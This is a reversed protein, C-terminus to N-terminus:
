FSSFTTTNAVLIMVLIMTNVMAGLWVKGTAKFLYRSIYNAIILFLILPLAIFIHLWDMPGNKFYIVGTSFLTAYQIVALILLGLVSGVAGLLTSVWNKMGAVRMSSNLMVSGAFFYIFFLPMYQLAVFFSSANFPTIAAIWLRFDTNFFYQAFMLLAYFGIFICFTLALTRLLVKGKIKIGLTEYSYGSKKSNFRYSIWFLLLGVLGNFVAWFMIFNTAPQTFLTGSVMDETTVPFFVQDLNTLPIFSLASIIWSLAWSIWFFLKTNRNQKLAPLEGPVPSLVPYFVPIKLLFVTMPVIIMFCALMGIFNFIEKWNWVQNSVPIPNSVQFAATFFDVAYGASKTSFHQGGHIDDPNYIVRLTKDAANGYFKGIEVYTVKQEDTLAANVTFLSIDATGSLDANGRTLVYGNEDYLGYNIGYNAHINKVGEETLIFAASTNLGANVKNVANAADQESQTITIGGDSLPDQAAQIAAYYQMGYYELTIETCMGSVSHGMVGIKAKDVYDLNNYAYEVMPIMGMGNQFINPFMGADLPDASSEGHYLMDFSIVAIGRRSLEIATSDQMLNNNLKGHSTIVLPVKNDATAFAPKFLQGSIWEGNPGPIKFKTVQVTGFSTQFASAVICSILVLVLCIVFLRAPWKAGSKPWTGNHVAIDGQKEM